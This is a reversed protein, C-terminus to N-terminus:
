HSWARIYDVLEEAHTTSASVTPARSPGLVVSYSVINWPQTPHGAASCVKVGDVYWTTGTAEIDAGYVHMGTTPDFPMTYHCGGGGSTHATLYLQSHNDGYFEFVDTEQASANTGPAGWTWLAPQIGTLPSFQARTEIYGYQFSQKSGLQAGTWQAAPEASTTERRSQFTAVGNAFTINQGDTKYDLEGNGPNWRGGDCCEWSGTTNWLSRDLTTATFEDAFTAHWTGPVGVPSVGGSPVTTSTTSATGTSSTTPATTTTTGNAEIQNLDAAIAALKTRADAIAAANDNPSTAAGLQVTATLAVAVAAVGILARTRLNM